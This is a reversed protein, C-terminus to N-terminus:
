RTTYQLLSVDYLLICGTTFLKQFFDYVLLALLISIVCKEFCMVAQM